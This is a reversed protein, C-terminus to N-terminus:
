RKYREFADRCDKLHYGRLVPKDKPTQKGTRLPRPRIGFPRLLKALQRDSIPEGRCFESWPREPMDTLADVILATALHNDGERKFLKRLDQLLLVGKSNEQGAEQDALALAAEVANDLWDGGIRKAIQFLPLWNDFQRDNMKAPRRIRVKDLGERNDQAWRAIKRRLQDFADGLKPRRFRKKRDDTLKRRMPIVISRDSITPPLAGIAAIAKAGWTSFRRPSHDDGVCRIVFATDRTHGSNLIGRLEDNGKLFSDGEDILLTPAHEELMRFTAAPSVNAAPLSRYVLRTLVAILTTKGCRLEPSIIALIAATYIEDLLHTLVIWLAVATAASDSMSVYRHLVDEISQLLSSGDVREAWPTIEPFVLDQSKTDSQRLPVPATYKDIQRRLEKIGLAQGLDNADTGDVNEPFRPRFLEGGVSAAAKEALKAETAGTDSCIVVKKGLSKAYDAVERLNNCGIAVLVYEDTAIHITTGTSWSECVWVRDCEEDGIPHCVGKTRVGALSLKKGSPFIRQLTALEGHFNQYPVVLASGEQRIDSMIRLAIDGKLYKSGLYSQRANAPPLKEFERLADRSARPIGRKPLVTKGHKNSSKGKKWDGCGFCKEDGNEWYARNDPSGCAACPGDTRRGRNRYARHTSPSM